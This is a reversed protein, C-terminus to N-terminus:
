DLRNREHELRDPTVDDLETDSADSETLPTVYMEIESRHEPLIRHWNRQVEMIMPTGCKIPVDSEYEPPLSAPDFIAYVKYLLGTSYDLLGTNVAREILEVSDLPREDTPYSKTIGEPPPHDASCGFVAAALVALVVAHLIRM